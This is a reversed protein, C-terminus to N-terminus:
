LDLKKTLDVGSATQSVKRFESVVSERDHKESIFFVREKREDDMVALVDGSIRKPMIVLVGEDISQALEEIDQNKEVLHVRLGFDRFIGIFDDDGAFIINM